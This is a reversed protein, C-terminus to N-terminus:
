KITNLIKKSKVNFVVAKLMRNKYRIKKDILYRNARKGFAYTTLKYNTFDNSIVYPYKEENKKIANVLDLWNIFEESLYLDEKSNIIFTKPKIMNAEILFLNEYDKIIYFEGIKIEWFVKQSYKINKAIEFITKNSRNQVISDKNILELWKYISRQIFELNKDVLNKNIKLEDASMNNNVYWDVELNMKELEKNLKKIEKEIDLFSDESLKARIENRKYNTDENTSDFAYSVNDKILSKYIDSKLIDLMPRVITLGKYITTKNLGYFKVYSKRKKQLLFTEILDNKNHAVLVNKINHKKSMELFFDYRITRAWSEFNEKLHNYNQKVDLIELKLNHKECFNSVIKQDINSDKRFNYNVHCVVINQINMKVLENLMFISDPGGSVAVLYLFSNNLKFKGM